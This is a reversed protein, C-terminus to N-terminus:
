TETADSNDVRLLFRYRTWSFGSRVANWNSFQQFFARLNRLNREDFGKGFEAMLATALNKLLRKGHQARTEGGQEFEVIHRGIQWYTQV